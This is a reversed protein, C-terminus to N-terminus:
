LVWLSAPGSVETCLCREQCPSLQDRRRKGGVSVIATMDVELGKHLRSALSLQDSMQASPRAQQM